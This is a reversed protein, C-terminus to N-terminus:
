QKILKMGVGAKNLKVKWGKARMIDKKALNFLQRSESDGGQLPVLPQSTIPQQEERPYILSTLHGHGRRTCCHSHQRQGGRSFGQTRDGQQRSGLVQHLGWCGAAMPQQAGRKLSQLERSFGHWSLVAACNRLFAYGYRQRYPSPCSSLM